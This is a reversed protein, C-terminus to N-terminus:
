ELELFLAGLEDIIDSPLMAHQSLRAAARDGAMGHLRVGACAADWASLGQAILGGIIGALVDGSGGVAMGANGTTNTVLQGDPSAIVTQHGKLVVVAHFQEAALKAAAPRDAEIDEVSRALLRSLEAPHPTLVLAAHTAKLITIHRVIANIGDADLVIPCQSHRLLMSVLQATANSDGLGCGVLIATAKQYLPHRYM